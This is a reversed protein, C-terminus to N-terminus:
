FNFTKNEIEKELFRNIKYLNQIFFMIFIPLIFLSILIHHSTYFLLFSTLFFCVFYLLLIQLVNVKLELNLVTLQKKQEISISETYKMKFGNSKVFPLLFSVEKRPLFIKNEKKLLLDFKQSRNKLILKKSIKINFLL